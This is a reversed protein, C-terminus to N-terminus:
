EANEEKDAGVQFRFTMIVVSVINDDGPTWIHELVTCCFM